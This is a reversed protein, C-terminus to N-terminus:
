EPKTFGSLFAVAKDFDSTVMARVEAPSIKAVAAILVINATVAHVEKMAGEIQAVTPECLNLETIPALDGVQIPHKLTLTLTDDM